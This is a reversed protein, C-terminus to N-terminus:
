GTSICTKEGIHVTKINKEIAKLICATVIDGENFPSIDGMLRRLHFTGKLKQYMGDTFQLTVKHM